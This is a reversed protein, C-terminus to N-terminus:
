YFFCTAEVFLGTEADEETHVRFCSIIVQIVLVSAAFTFLKILLTFAYLFSLFSNM